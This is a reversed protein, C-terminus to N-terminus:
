DSLELVRRPNEVTVRDLVAEAVGLERLRPLFTEQVYTHGTSGYTELQMALGVDYSLLLQGAYGRGILAHFM